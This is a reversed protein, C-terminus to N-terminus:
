DRGVEAWGRAALRGILPLKIALDFPDVGVSLGLLSVEIGEEVAVVLGALGVLSLQVGTGSPAAAVANGLPLYDKGIATPPLDLRLEPAARGIEATFTNSNPGPWMRYREAFRYGRVALEIRDIIAEVHDGAVSAYLRPTAGFWRRDPPGERAVLVSPYHWKRWGQLEYTTFCPADRRKVSVWTHVAFCKRWGYTRAGYVQAVPGRTVVPDPAIGIGDHRSDWGNM